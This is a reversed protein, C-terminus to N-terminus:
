EAGRWVRGRHGSARAATGAVLSCPPSVGAATGRLGATARYRRSMCRGLCGVADVGDLPTALCQKQIRVELPRLPHTLSCVHSGQRRTTAGTSLRLSASALHSPKKLARLHACRELKTSPTVERRAATHLVAKDWRDARKGDKHLSRRHSQDEGSNRG